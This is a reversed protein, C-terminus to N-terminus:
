GEEYANLNRVEVAQDAIGIQKSIRGHKNQKPFYFCGEELLQRHADLFATRGKVIVAHSAIENGRYFVTIRRNEMRVEVDRNAFKPPVSYKSGNISILCRCDAKRYLVESIRFDPKSSIQILLPQEKGLREKPTEGTSSHVKSNAKDMWARAKTNLDELDTFELGLFFNDRVYHVLREVKGKTRPKRVRCLSITTGYYAMFDTFLPTLKSEAVTKGRKLVVQKMNDYLNENPAGDFHKYANIHCRILTHLDMSTTFETYRMRSYGLVMVFCHLKLMEGDNEITGFEAWDVQAQRGPETEFMKVAHYTAEHRLTKIYDRLITKKGQYGQMQIEEFIRVGSLPFQELRSRIYDKYPELKGEHKTKKFYPDYQDLNAYKKVTKRDVGIMRAIESKSVGNEMLNRIEVHEGRSMM